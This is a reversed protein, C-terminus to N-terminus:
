GKVKKLNPNAKKAAASANRTRAALIAGAVKRSYGENQIKNQVVSFGPHAQSM